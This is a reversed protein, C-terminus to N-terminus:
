QAMSRYQSSLAGNEFVSHICVDLIKYLVTNFKNIFLIDYNEDVVNKM